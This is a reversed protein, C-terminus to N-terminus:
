ATEELKQHKNALEDITLKSLEKASHGVDLLDNIMQDVTPIELDMSTDIKFHKLM